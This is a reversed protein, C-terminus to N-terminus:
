IEKKEVKIPAPIKGTRIYEEFEPALALPALETLNRAIGSILMASTLQASFMVSLEAAKARIEYDDM